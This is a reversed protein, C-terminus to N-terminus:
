ITKLKLLIRHNRDKLAVSKKGNDYKVEEFICVNPDTDFINETETKASEYSTYDVVDHVIMDNKLYQRELKM